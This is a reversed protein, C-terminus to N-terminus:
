VVKKEINVIKRDRCQINLFGLEVPDYGFMEPYSVIPENNRDLEDSFTRYFSGTNTYWRKDQDIEDSQEWGKYRQSVRGNDEAILMLEETPRVILLKHTHGCSMILCNNFKYKLKMKLNAKMNAKRQEYDKANSNITGFGHHCYMNYILGYQDRVHVICSITGYQIGLPKCILDKTLDGFRWLKRPHNGDLMVKLHGELSKFDEVVAECQKIPRSDRTAESYRNDDVM